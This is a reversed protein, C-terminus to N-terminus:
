ALTIVMERFLGPQRSLTTYTGDQVIRGRDLVLIRDADRVTALRHAIVIRTCPLARLQANLREELALDLSSTAEDLLLLDPSAALARALALRQRQGGSLRRANEGLPSDLGGPLAAVVEDVCALACARELDDQGLAARGLALNERVSADFLFAEQLVVGIRRRLAGLDIARLDVGNVEITGESPVLMGLLLRGLTSKGAGSPGVIALTQGRRISLDVGSVVEPSSTGYRYSVGRLAVSDITQGPDIGGRREPAADLVDDLRALHTRFVAIEQAASLLASLPKEMLGQLLLFSAFTGITMRDAIVINGGFWLLVGRSVGDFVLLGQAAGQTVLYRAQAANLREHLRSKYRAALAPEAGFAKAAEAVSFAEASVAQERGQAALEAQTAHRVRAQLAGVIGARALALAVVVGALRPEYAFMLLAYGLVLFGDLLAGVADAVLDGLAGNAQARAMLDGTTRQQFFGIPLGLLHDVFASMLTVDLLTQLSGAVWERLYGLAAKLLMTVVLVVGVMWLWRENRPRIVFDILVQNAAPFVLGVVELLLASGVVAGLAGARRSLVRRYRTLSGGRSARRQFAPGPEFLLVIGSFSERVESAQVRRRGLAPDVIDAHARTADELVVFHNLNWHMIAPGAVSALDDVEIRLAQVDLGYARAANRVALASAGDRSVGCAERLESLPVNSGYYALVMALCAAGCETSEMQPVYPVRRSFLGM